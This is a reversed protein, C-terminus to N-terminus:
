TFLPISSLQCSYNSVNRLCIESATLLAKPKLICVLSTCSVQLVDKETQRSCFKVGSCDAFKKTNQATSSLNPLPIILHCFKFRSDTGACWRLSQEYKSCSHACHIFLCWIQLRIFPLNYNLRVIRWKLVHSLTEETELRKRCAIKLCALPCSCLYLTTKTRSWEFNHVELKNKPGLSGPVAEEVHM